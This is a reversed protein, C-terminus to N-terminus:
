FGGPQTDPFVDLAVAHIVVCFLLHTNAHIVVLIDVHEPSFSGVCDCMLALTYHRRRLNTSFALM